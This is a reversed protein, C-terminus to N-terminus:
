LSHHKRCVAIYKDAGGVDIVNSDCLLKKTFPAPTANTPTLQDGNEKRCITCIANLKIFNDSIPLLQSIYGFPNMNADGDLGACIIHKDQKIWNKITNVLDDPNNFFNVEDVGIFDYDSVDITSLKDTTIVDIKDTLGKYLPNHSSVMNIEDRRDLQHNIILGKKNFSLYIFKVIENILISSKGSFMGGTYVKLSM